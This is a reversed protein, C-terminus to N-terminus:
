GRQEPRREGERESEREIWKQRPIQSMNGLIDVREGEGEGERSWGDLGRDFDWGSGIWGM